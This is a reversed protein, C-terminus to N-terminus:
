NMLVSIYCLNKGNFGELILFKCTHFENIIEVDKKKKAAALDYGLREGVQAKVDLFSM